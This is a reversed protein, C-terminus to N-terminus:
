GEMRGFPDVVDEQSFNVFGRGPASKAFILGAIWDLAKTVGEPIGQLLPGAGAGAEPLAASVLISLAAKSLCLLFSTAIMAKDRSELLSTAIMAKHKLKGFDLIRSQVIWFWRSEFDRPKLQRPKRPKRRPVDGAETQTATSVSRARAQALLASGPVAFPERASRAM